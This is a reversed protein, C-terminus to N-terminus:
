QLRENISWGYKANVDSVFDRLESLKATPQFVLRHVVDPTTVKLFYRRKFAVQLILWAGIMGCIILAFELRNGWARDDYIADLFRVIVVIAPALLAVGLGLSVAPRQEPSGRMLECSLAADKAVQFVVRGNEAEWIAESSAGVGQYSTFSPKEATNMSDRNKLRM